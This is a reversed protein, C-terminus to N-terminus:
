SKRKKSNKNRNGHGNSARKWKSKKSSANNKLQHFEASGPKIGLQKAIYGWGKTKDKEYVKLVDVYSRRTLRAIELTLFIEGPILHLESRMYDIKQVPINFSVSLEQKFSIYNSTGQRNIGHLDSELQANGINFSVQPFVSFALFFLLISFTTKM